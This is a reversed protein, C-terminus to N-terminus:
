EQRIRGEREQLKLKELTPILKKLPGIFGDRLFEVEKSMVTRCWSPGAKMNRLFQIGFSDEGRPASAGETKAIVKKALNTISAISAPRGKAHISAFVQDTQWGQGKFFRLKEEKTIIRRHFATGNQRYPARAKVLERQTVINPFSAKIGSM